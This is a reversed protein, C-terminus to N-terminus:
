QLVTKFSNGDFGSAVFSMLQDNPIVKSPVSLTGRSRRGVFVPRANLINSAMSLILDANGVANQGFGTFLPTGASVWTAAPQTYITQVTLVGLAQPGNISVKGNQDIALRPLSNTYLSLPVANTTGLVSSATANSNGTLNWQANSKIAFCFFCLALLLLAFNKKM